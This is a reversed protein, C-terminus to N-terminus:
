NTHQFLSFLLAGSTEVKKKAFSDSNNQWHEIKALIAGLRENYLMFVDLLGLSLIINSM